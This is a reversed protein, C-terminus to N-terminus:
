SSGVISMFFNSSAFYHVNCIEKSFYLSASCRRIGRLRQRAGLWRLIFAKRKEATHEAKLVEKVASKADKAKAIEWAHSDIVYPLWNRNEFSYPMACRREQAKHMKGISKDPLKSWRGMCHRHVFRSKNSDKWYLRCSISAPRNEWEAYIGRACVREDFFYQTQEYTGKSKNFAQNDVYYSM